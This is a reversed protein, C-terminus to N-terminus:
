PTPVIGGFHINTLQVTGIVSLVGDVLTINYNASSGGVLSIAYTGVPSDTTAATSITPPSQVGTDGNVLGSYAAQLSPNPQGQLKSMSIATITLMAKNVTITLHVTDNGGGNTATVVYTQVAHPSTPTGTVVGNTFSLGASLAPSIGWSDIAGGTNVPQLKPIAYGYTGNVVKILYSVNPPVIAAANVTITITTKGSGGANTVTVTYVTASSAVTATGSIVGNSVNFSLGSPLAKDIAYSVVAGGTNSPAIPTITTGQTYIQPTVYSIIPVAIPKANVTIQVGTKGSGGSNTATITYTASSVTTPIGSIVGNTTNLSLGAPVSGSYSVAAGGSNSPSLSVSQGVTFTNPTTYTINPPSIVIGCTPNFLIDPLLNANVAPDPTHDPTNTNWGTPVLVGPNLYKNVISGDFNTWNLKNQQATLNNTPQGSYNASTLGLLSVTRKTGYAQNFSIDIFTGGQIQYGGYGTNKAKNYYAQQYSGGVDGLVISMFGGPDSSGNVICNYNVKIPSVSTGNSQYISLGDGAAPLDTPNYCDNYMIENGAGNYNNFQVYSGKSNTHGAVDQINYIRNYYIHLNTGNQPSGTGGANVGIYSNSIFNTDISINSTSGQVFIAGNKSHSNTVFCGTIHVNTVGTPVTIGPTNAGGVNIM